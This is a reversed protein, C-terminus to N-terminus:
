PVSSGSSFFLLFQVLPFFIKWSSKSCCAIPKHWFRIFRHDVATWGEAIYMKGLGNAAFMAVQEVRTWVRSRVVLVRSPEVGFTKLSSAFLAACHGNMANWLWWTIRILQDWIKGSSYQKPWKREQLNGPKFTSWHEGSWKEGGLTNWGTSSWLAGPIEAPVLNELTMVRSNWKM